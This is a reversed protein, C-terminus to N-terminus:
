NQPLASPSVSVYMYTIYLSVLNIFLKRFFEYIFKKMVLVAGEGYYRM